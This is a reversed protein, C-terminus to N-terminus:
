VMFRLLAAINFQNYSENNQKFINWTYGGRLSLWRSLDTQLGLGLQIGGHIKKIYGVDTYFIINDTLQYGPLVRAGFPPTKGNSNNNNMVFLEMSYLFRSNWKLMYGGFLEGTINKTGPIGAGLGLYFYAIPMDLLPMEDSKASALEIFTLFIAFVLITKKIM